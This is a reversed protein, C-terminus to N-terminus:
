ESNLVNFIKNLLFRQNSTWFPPTKKELTKINKSKSLPKPIKEDKKSTYFQDTIERTVVHATYFVAM